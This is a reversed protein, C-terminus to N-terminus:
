FLYNILKLQKKTQIVWTLLGGVYLMHHNIGNAISIDFALKDNFYYGGGFNINHSILKAHQFDGFNEVFFHISDSANYTLNAIYFGTKTADTEIAYGINYTLIFDKSVSNSLNLSCIKGIIKLAFNTSTPLITRILLSAEPIIHHGKWLNLSFGLQVDDFKNLNHILHDHEWM